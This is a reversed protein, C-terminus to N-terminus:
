LSEKASEILMEVEDELEHYKENEEILQRIEKRRRFIVWRGVHENNLMKDLYEKSSIVSSKNTKDTIM